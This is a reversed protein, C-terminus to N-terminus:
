FSARLEVKDPGGKNSGRASFPKPLWYTNVAVATESLCRASAFRDLTRPLSRGKATHKCPYACSQHVGFWSLVKTSKRSNTIAICIIVPPSVSDYAQPNSLVLWGFLHLRARRRHCHIKCRVLHAQQTYRISRHLCRLRQLLHDPASYSTQKTGRM